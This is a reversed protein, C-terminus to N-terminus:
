ACKFCLFYLCSCFIVDPKVNVQTICTRKVSIKRTFEIKTHISNVVCSTVHRHSRHELSPLFSHNLGIGLDCVFMQHMACREEDEEECIGIWVHKSRQEMLLCVCFFFCIDSFFNFPVCVFACWFLSVFQEFM